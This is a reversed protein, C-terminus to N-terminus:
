KKQEVIWVVLSWTNMIACVLLMVSILWLGIFALSWQNLAFCLAVAVLLTYNFVPLIVQGLWDSLTFDQHKKAIRTLKRVFPVSWGLGIIGGIFFLIALVPPTYLPVLMACAILLVSVFYFVSPTVFAKMEETIESSIMNLGLSLAVFMLGILTAATGGAMFYFNQWSHLMDNFSEAM